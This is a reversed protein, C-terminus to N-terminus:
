GKRASVVEVEEFRALALGCIKEMLGPPPVTEDREVMRERLRLLYKTLSSVYLANAPTMALRDCLSIATFWCAMVEQMFRSDDPQAIFVKSAASDFASPEAAEIGKAPLGNMMAIITELLSDEEAGEGVRLALSFFEAQIRTCLGREILKESLDMAGEPKKLLGLDHPQRISLDRLLNIANFFDKDLDSGTGSARHWRCDVLPEDGVGGISWGERLMHNVYTWDDAYGKVLPFQHRKMVDSRGTLTGLFAPMLHADRYWSDSHRGLTLGIPNGELDVIRCRGGCILHEGKALLDLRRRLSNPLLIDDHDLFTIYKGKAKAIGANRTAQPGKNRQQFLLVRDDRGAYGEVLKVTEDTSGDDIVIMEYDVDEQATVSKLAQEIFATGDYTPMVISVEPRWFFRAIPDEVYVSRVEPDRPPVNSFVYHDANRLRFVLRSIGIPDVKQMQNFEYDFDHLYVQGGPAVLSNVLAELFPADFCPQKPGFPAQGYSLDNDGPEVVLVRDHAKLRALLRNEEVQQSKVVAFTNPRSVLDEITDILREPPQGKARDMVVLIKRGRELLPYRALRSELVVFSTIGVAIGLTDASVSGEGLIVLNDIQTALM